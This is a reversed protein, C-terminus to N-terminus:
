IIKTFLYSVSNFLFLNFSFSFIQIFAADMSKHTVASILPFGYNSLLDRMSMLHNSSREHQCFLEQDEGLLKWMAM